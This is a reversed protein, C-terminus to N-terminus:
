SGYAIGEVAVGNVSTVNELKFSRFANKDTDWVAMVNEPKTHPKVDATQVREPLFEPILTCRMKRYEGNTKNFEVVCVMEHLDNLLENRNM